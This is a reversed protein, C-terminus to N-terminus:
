AGYSACVAKIKSRIVDCRARPLGMECALARLDEEGPRGNGLLTMEHEAMDPTRTLDYAPALTYRGYKEDYIFAFNGGHDDKNEYFVNFCARAYIEFMDEKPCGLAVATRYLHMYDLNPVTHSTELLSSLSVMHVRRPGCRDFREAGFYGSCRSSPFLAFGNVNLGCKKACMNANYEAMGVDPPDIRCPFKIIWERGDAFIHAKPRTGGSSGGAAFIKDLDGSQEGDAIDASIRALEDLDADFEEHESIDPFYELAGRGDAGVLALKTLPSLHEYNVGNKALMRATLLAGWGDPLSDAFVGYLGDFTNKRCIYMKEALPLSLPSVSFGDKIWEGDYQFAIGESLAALVGVTKGNYTVQLKKIEEVNM